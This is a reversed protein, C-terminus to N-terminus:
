HHEPPAYMVTVVLEEKIDVFHHDTEPGLHIVDGSAVKQKEGEVELSASGSDIHYIEDVEHAHEEDSDGPEFKMVELSFDETRLREEYNQGESIGEAVETVSFKDM